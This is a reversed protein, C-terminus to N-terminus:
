KIVFAHFGNRNCTRLFDYMNTQSYLESGDLGARKLANICDELTIGRKILHGLHLEFHSYKANKILQVYKIDGLLEYEYGEIDTKIFDFDGSIYDSLQCTRMPINIYDVLMKNSEANESSSTAVSVAYPIVSVRDIVDNILCNFLGILVNLISPEFSKVSALSSTLGYYVAWVMQHGGLDIFKLSNRFLGRQAELLFDCTAIFHPSDYWEKSQQNIIGINIIKGDPLDIRRVYPDREFRHHSALIASLFRKLKDRLETACGDWNGNEAKEISEDTFLFADESVDIDHCALVDITKKTFAHFNYNQM